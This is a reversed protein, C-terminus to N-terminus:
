KTSTVLRERDFAAASLRWGVVDLVVLAAAFRVAVTFSAPIVKYAVMSTVAITPLSALASLQQATRPDNTRASIGVGIWISLAALLPTFVIQALVQSGKVVAAAIGPHAFVEVVAIFLGFVSYAILLSPVFSALAKGLLFEEPRIPTTLVSELTGQQREGVVAFSALASPVLAPIALLYLLPNEHSIATSARSSAVIIAITPQLVIVFPYIAMAVVIAGNRRYERVEKRLIAAVARRNIKFLKV